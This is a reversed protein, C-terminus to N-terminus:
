CINKRKRQVKKRECMAMTAFLEKYINRYFLVIFTDYVTNKFHIQFRLILKSFHQQKLPIKWYIFHSQDNLWDCSNLILKNLLITLISNM